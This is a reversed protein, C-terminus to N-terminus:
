SYSVESGLGETAEYEQMVTDLDACYNQYGGIIEYEHGKIKKKFDEVLNKLAAKSASTSAEKNKKDYIEKSM